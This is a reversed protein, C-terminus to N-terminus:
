QSVLSSETDTNQSVPEPTTSSTEESTNTAIEQPNGPQVYGVHEYGTQGYPPYFYTPPPYVPPYVPSYNPYHPYVPAPFGGYNYGSQTPSSAISCAMPSPLGPSSSYSGPYYYYSGHDFGNGYHQYGMGPSQGLPPGFPPSMQTAPSPLHASFGRDTVPTQYPRAGTSTLPAPRCVQRRISRAKAAETNKQSVRL